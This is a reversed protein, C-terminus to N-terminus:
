EIADAIEELSDVDMVRIKGHELEVIGGQAWLALQRNINERSIGAFMALETQSLSIVGTESNKLLRLLFRALRPAAGYARDTEITENALRLRMALERMLRLAIRHNAAIVREFVARPLTLYRVPGLAIVSATRLGGDILAIEGLVTGAEVYELVIERGNASYVTVRARGEMLILLFDGPDGQQLLVAGKKAKHERADTLLYALDDPGLSRLLSHEPLKAYLATIDM